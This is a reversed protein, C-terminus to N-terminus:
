ERHVSAELDGISLRLTMPAMLLMAMRIGSVNPERGRCVMMSNLLVPRPSYPTMPLASCPIMSLLLVNPFALVPTPVKVVLRLAMSNQLLALMAPRSRPPKGAQVVPKGLNVWLVVLTSRSVMYAVSVLPFSLVDKRRQPGSTLLVIEM